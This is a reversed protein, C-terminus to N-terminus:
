LGNFAPSYFLSVELQDLGSDADYRLLNEGVSLQLFTCGVDLLSFANSTTGGSTKVVKKGAFQTYIDIVDGNAM